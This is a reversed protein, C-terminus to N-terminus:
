IVLMSDRIRVLNIMFVIQRRLQREGPLGPPRWTGSAGVCRGPMLQCKRIPSALADTMDLGPDHATGSAERAPM